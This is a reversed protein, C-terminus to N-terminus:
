REVLAGGSVRLTKSVGVSPRATMGPAREAYTVVLAGDSVWVSQPAVRDGLLVANTGEYGGDRALAVVVYFFTGSGGRSQTLLFAADARGDGDLDGTAESGFYRTVIRAASGAAAPTESVGDVLTVVQGEVQFTGSRLGRAGGAPGGLPLLGGAAAGSVQRMALALAVCLAAAVLLCLAAPLPKVLRFTNQSLM